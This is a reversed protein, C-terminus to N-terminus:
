RTGLAVFPSLTASGKYPTVPRRWVPMGDVRYTWRFAMEDYLFRVHMSQAQQIGGKDIMVYQQPDVLMLDGVTGLSPMYEVPVVPRGLLLGFQSDNGYSGPPNWLRITALDTGVSLPWLQTEIDQNILWILNGRSRLPTRAWMKLINDTRLTAAAQGSEPAVEVVAGSNLMGLPQGAGTGNIIADEVKFVMEEAFAQMLISEMAPADALLEDTAYAIAMLKKLRLEMQAFKPKSPPVTEAEDVWYAQVGGFRSGNVRSTEDIVPFRIGNFNAGIPIKRVRALLNGVDHMLRLFETSFDQQVLFGGESPTSENAGSPAAQYILRSDVEHYHINRNMGAKAVAQLFGGFTKFKPADETRPAAPVTARPAAPEEPLAPMTRRQEALAEERVISADVAPIDTKIISDLRAVEEATATGAVDKDSLAEAETVLDAKRQRLKLLKDM